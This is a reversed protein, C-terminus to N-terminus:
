DDKWSSYNNGTLKELDVISNRYKDSIVRRISPTIAPYKKEKSALKRSLELIKKFPVILGDPTNQKVGQIFKKNRLARALLKSRPVASANIKFNYNFGESFDKVSLFRTIKRYFREPERKLESYSLILINEKDFHKQFNKIHEAYLGVNFMYTYRAGGELCFSNFDPHSRGSKIDQWYNSYLRDVPNRLIFIIKIEGLSEKILRPSDPDYMYVTSAEGICKENNYGIFNKKYFDIGKDYIEAGFITSYFGPEKCESMYIDQHMSLVNAVYSTGSKAAGAIIFNPLNNM